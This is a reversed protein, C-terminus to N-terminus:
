EFASTKLNAVVRTQDSAAGSVLLDLAIEELAHIDLDSINELNLVLYGRKVGFMGVKLRHQDTSYLANAGFRAPTIVNEARDSKLNYSSVTRDNITVSEIEVNLLKSSTNVFTLALAPKGEFLGFSNATITIGDAKYVQQSEIKPLDAAAATGAKDYRLFLFGKPGGVAVSIIWLAILVFLALSVIWVVDTSNLNRIRNFVRKM